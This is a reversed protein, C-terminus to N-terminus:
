YILDIAITTDKEIDIKCKHFPPVSFKPRVNNSFGYGEKPIGIFNANCKKDSNEDHYMALAYEGPPLDELVLSESTDNIEFSYLRYEEGKNPFSEDLNYLGLNLHGETNKINSVTVTLNFTQSYSLLSVFVLYFLLLKKM